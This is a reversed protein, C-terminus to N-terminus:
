INKEEIRKNAEQFDKTISDIFQENPENGNDRLYVLLKDLSRLLTSLCVLMVSTAKNPDPNKYKLYHELRAWVHMLMSRIQIEAPIWEGDINIKAALHLSSYGSVKPKKIYDDSEEEIISIEPIMRILDAVDYIDDIYHCVIRIGAVDHIVQRIDDISSPQEGKTKKEYKAICSDFEKIRSEIFALPNRVYTSNELERQKAKLASYIVGLAKKCKTSYKAYELYLNNNVYLKKWGM